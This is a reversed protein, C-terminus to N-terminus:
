PIPLEVQLPSLGEREVSLTLRGWRLDVGLAKDLYLVATPMGPFSYSIGKPDHRPDEPDSTSLYTGDDESWFAWWLDYQSLKDLRIDRTRTGRRSHLRRFSPYIATGGSLSERSEVLARRWDSYFLHAKSSLDIPTGSQPTFSLSLRRIGETAYAGREPNPSTYIIDNVVERQKCIREYEAVEQDHSCLRHGQEHELTLAWALGGPRAVRRYDEPYMSWLKVRTPQYYGAIPYKIPFTVGTIPKAPEQKKCSTLSILAGLALLALPRIFPKMPTDRSLTSSTTFEIASTMHYGPVTTERQSYGQLSIAMMLEEGVGTITYFTSTSQRVTHSLMMGSPYTEIAMDRYFGVFRTAMVSGLMVVPSTISKDMWLLLPVM